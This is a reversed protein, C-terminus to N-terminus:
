TPFSRGAQGAGLGSMPSGIGGDVGSSLGAVSITAFGPFSM